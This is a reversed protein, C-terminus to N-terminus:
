EGTCDRLCAQFKARARCDYHYHDDYDCAPRACLKGALQHARRIPQISSVTHEYDGEAISSTATCACANQAWGYGSNYWRQILIRNLSRQSDTKTTNGGFYVRIIIRPTIAALQEILSLLLLLRRL